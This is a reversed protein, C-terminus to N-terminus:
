DVRRYLEGRLDVSLEAIRVFAVLGMSTEVRCTRGSTYYPGRFAGVLVAVELVGFCPRVQALTRRLDVVLDLAAKLPRLLNVNRAMATFVARCGTDFWEPFSNGLQVILVM